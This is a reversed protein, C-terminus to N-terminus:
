WFTSSPMMTGTTMLADFALATAFRNVVMYALFFACCDGAVTTGSPKRGRTSNTTRERGERM